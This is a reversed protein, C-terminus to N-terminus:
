RQDRAWRAPPCGFAATFVRHFQPYSGFGARLARGLLSSGSPLDLFRRLRQRNRYAVLTSGTHARFLHRLRSPSLGARASVAELDAGDDQALAQAARAVAPHVEGGPAPEPARLHADWAAVALHTLAPGLVTGEDLRAAVAECLARLRRAEGEPLRRCHHGPPDRALLPAFEGAPRAARLTPAHFFALWLRLDPSQDVLVHDQGPFLWAIGGPGLDYRRRGVLYRATGRVVLNLELEPHRHRAQTRHPPSVLFAGGLTAVPDAM